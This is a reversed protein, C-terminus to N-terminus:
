IILDNTNLRTNWNVGAKGLHKVYLSPISIQRHFLQNFELDCQTCNFSDTYLITPRFRYLQFFGHFGKYEFDVIDKIFNHYSYYDYRCVVGYLSNDQVNTNQIIQKFDNPLLIDSDLLLVNGTYDHPITQQAFRIAGGKNFIKGNAYFDFFIFDVNSFKYKCITNITKHDNQDTVIIWKDFFKANNTLTHELIDHYKTSVTIAIMYLLYIIRQPKRTNQIPHMRTNQIPHMRTNQIPHMRTNQIPHM